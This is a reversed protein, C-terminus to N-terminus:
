AAGGDTELPSLSTCKASRPVYPGKKRAAPLIGRLRIIEEPSLRWPPREPTVQGTDIRHLMDLLYEPEAPYPAEQWMARIAARLNDGYSALRARARRWHAARRDRLDQQWDDWALARHAMEDDVSPQTEAILPALLPLRDRQRKQHRLVGARKRTTDTFKQRWSWRSFRM